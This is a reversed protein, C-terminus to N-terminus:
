NHRRRIENKNFGIGKIGKGKALPLPLYIILSAEGRKLEGRTTAEPILDAYLSAM